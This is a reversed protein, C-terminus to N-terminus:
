KKETHKQVDYTNDISTSSYKGQSRRLISYLNYCITYEKDAILNPHIDNGLMVLSRDSSYKHTKVASLVKTPCKFCNRLM